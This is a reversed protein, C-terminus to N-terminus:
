TPLNFKTKEAKLIYLQNCQESVRKEKIRLPFNDLGIARCFDVKDYVEKVHVPTVKTYVSTTALNVHGFQEQLDNLSVGAELARVAHTHRLIHSTVRRRNLKERPSSEQIGAHEAVKDLAIQVARTTLHEKRGPFLWDDPGRDGM